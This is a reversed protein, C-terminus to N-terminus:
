ADILWAKQTALEIQQLIWQHLEPFVEKSVQNIAIVQSKRVLQKKWAKNESSLNMLFPLLRDAVKVRQSEISTNGAYKLWHIQVEPDIQKYVENVWAQGCLVGKERTIVQAKAQQSKPILAATIDGSGIDEKLAQAVTESIRSVIDELNITM